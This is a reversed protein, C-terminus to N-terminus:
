ELRGNLISSNDHFIVKRCCQKFSLGAQVITTIKVNDKAYTVVNHYMNVPPVFAQM